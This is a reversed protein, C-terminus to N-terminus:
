TRKSTIRTASRASFPKDSTRRPIARSAPSSGSASARRHPAGVVQGDRSSILTLKGIQDTIKEIMPELKEAM